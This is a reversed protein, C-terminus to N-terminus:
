RSEKLSKKWDQRSKIVETQPQAEHGRNVDHGNRLHVWGSGNFRIPGQCFKCKRMPKQSM